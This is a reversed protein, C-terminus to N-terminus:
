PLQILYFQQSPGSGIANTFIFNGSADFQNTAVRQWSALAATLNTSALVYYTGNTVGGSGSIILGASSAQVAGFRLPMTTASAVNSYGSNGGANGARVRYYYTSGLLLGTDTYNTVGTTVAAVLNFTVSDPSREILFNIENTSNDMWELNIQSGSAATATLGGPAAPATPGTNPVDLEVADYVWGASLWPSLDSSGSIPPITMTNQGSVFASAPVNFSYLANNGRYTGTTFSRSSPQSSIGPNSSPIWSNVTPKPRGNNYACTIGIRLTLGAIQSTAYQNSDLNFSITTPSNILRMQIAPFDGPSNSGVVYTVPGWNANRVDQPHMNIINSANLLGAPTGDWEGIKFIYSPVSEGSALNLTNTVGASITTTSNAVSLEGKYLTVTYTGPKMLSTLYTGNYSVVAWYQANTNAFGVVGQFGAPIGSVVGGVAGRNTASVWGLLNLGGTEIWSYDIPLTPPAGTTFVLAYPGYLLGGLRWAEPEEHGSNMYNYVEQDSNAGDGQNEIDRYFPGGSSSERTDFVMWVGIGSGTAGTYTLELARHRGYYKSTTQGNAYGFVDTSEIAGTNGNNNSQPPGNPIKNWQLRTIWRLEGVSPEDFVYTAMYIIPDGNRVMLYHTLNTVVTNNPGSNITIKIYSSGYTTATVTASGLGSAIQSNKDTAQYETGNFNLSTTDGSSQNVKFVLGAGTDVTYFGGSSTVGFAGFVREVGVTFGILALVLCVCKRVLNGFYNAM